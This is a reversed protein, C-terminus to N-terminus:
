NKSLAFSTKIGVSERVGVVACSRIARFFIMEVRLNTAVLRRQRQSVSSRTSTAASHVKNHAANEQGVACTKKKSTTPQHAPVHIPVALAIFRALFRVPALQFQQVFVFREHVLVPLLKVSVVLQRDNYIGFVFFLM